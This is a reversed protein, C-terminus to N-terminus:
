QENLGVPVVAKGSLQCRLQSRIQMFGLLTGWGWQREGAEGRGQLM